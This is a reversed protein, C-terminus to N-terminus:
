QARAEILDQVFCSGSALGAGPVGLRGLIIGVLIAQILNEPINGISMLIGGRLILLRSSDFGRSDLITTRLNATPGWASRFRGVKKDAYRKASDAVEGNASGAVKAM